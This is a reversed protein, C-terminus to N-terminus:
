KQETDEIDKQGAKEGTPKNKFIYNGKLQCKFINRRAEEGLTSVMKEVAGRTKKRVGQDGWPCRCKAPQFLNKTVFEIIQNESTTCLPRILTIPYKEATNDGNKPAVSINLKCAMGAFRKHHTMTMLITAVIDDLHHGLALKNCGRERTLEMMKARRYRSCHICTQRHDNELYEPRISDEVIELKVDNEKCFEEIYTTGEEGYPLNLFKIHTAYVQFDGNMKKSLQSLFHVLTLSDKGGSLGIMVKDGKTILGYEQCASFIQDRVRNYIAVREAEETSM